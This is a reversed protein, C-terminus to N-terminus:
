RGQNVAQQRPAEFGHCIQRNVPQGSRHNFKNLEEPPIGKLKAIGSLDTPVRGSMRHGYNTCAIYLMLAQEKSLTPSFEIVNNKNGPAKLMKVYIEFKANSSVDVHNKDSYRIETEKIKFSYESNNKTIEAYGDVKSWYKQLEDNWSSTNDPAKPTPSTPNAVIPQPKEEEDLLRGINLGDVENIFTSCSVTGRMLEKAPAVLAVNIEGMRKMRIYADTRNNLKQEAPAIIDRRVEDSIEVELDPTIYKALNVIEEKGTEPNYLMYHYYLSRLKRFTQEDTDKQASLPAREAMNMVNNAFQKEDYYKKHRKNFQELMKETLVPLNTVFALREEKTRLTKLHNACGSSEGDFMTFDNFDGKKLYKNICHLLQQMYASRENEVCLRYMNDTSLQKYSDKLELGDLFIANKVHKLEHDITADLHNVNEQENAYISFLSYERQSSISYAYDKPTLKPNKRRAAKYDNIMGQLEAYDDSDFRFHNRVITIEKNGHNVQARCIKFDVVEYKDKEQNYRVKYIEDKPRIQYAVNRIMEPFFDDDLSCDFHLTNAKKVRSPYNNNKMENVFNEPEKIYHYGRIEDKLFKTNSADFSVNASPLGSSEFDDYNVSQCYQECQKTLRMKEAANGYTISLVVVSNDKTKVLLTETTM